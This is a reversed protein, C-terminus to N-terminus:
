LSKTGTLSKLQNAYEAVTKNGQKAAVTEVKVECVEAADRAKFYTQEVADWVEWATNLFMCTDSIEPLMSNMALTHDYFGGRGM